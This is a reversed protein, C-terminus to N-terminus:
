FMKLSLALSLTSDKLPFMKWWSQSDTVTGLTAASEILYRVHFGVAGLESGVGAMLYVPSEMAAEFVGTSSTSVSSTDALEFYSTRSDDASIVYMVSAGIGLELHLLDGVLPTNVGAMGILLAGQGEDSCQSPFVFFQAQLFSL